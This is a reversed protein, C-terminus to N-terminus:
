QVTISPQRLKVHGVHQRLKVHGVHITGTCQTTPTETNVLVMWNRSLWTDQM